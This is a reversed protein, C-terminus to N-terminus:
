KVTRVMHDNVSSLGYKYDNLSGLFRNRPISEALSPISEQAGEFPAPLCYIRNKLKLCINWDANRTLQPFVIFYNKFLWVKKAAQQSFIM